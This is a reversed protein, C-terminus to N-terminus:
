GGGGLGLGFGLLHDCRAGGAKSHPRHISDFDPVIRVDSEQMPAYVTKAFQDYRV